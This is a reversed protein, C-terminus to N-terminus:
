SALYIPDGRAWGAYLTIDSRPMLKILENPAPDGGFLATFARFDGFWQDAQSFSHVLLMAYRANLRAAEILAAVTRHVLQYRVPGLVAPAVGLQQALYAIRRQKGPSAARSWEAVTQDFPEAVKGEVAITMLQGDATRAIVFLDSQSAARGGPLPVTYEPFAFLLEVQQLAPLGSATFLRIVELPFGEAAHWSHALTRASFGSRWHREPAALLRQWDAPSDARLFIRKM